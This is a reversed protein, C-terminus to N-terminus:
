LNNVEGAQKHVPLTDGYGNPVYHYTVDLRNHGLLRSIEQRAGHDDVGQQRLQLYIEQAYNARLRHVGTVEIDLAKCARTITQRFASRWASSPTFQYQASPNLKEGINAPLPVVRRKGGKGTVHLIGNEIDVDQGRLGAIEDERLGCRLALEAPLAFRSSHDYLYAVIREADTVQYGFRPARVSSADNFSKVHARLDETVPDPQRTWGLQHCGAYVKGIAALLKALSGAAQGQYFTDLTKLLVEPTLLDCLKGKGTIEEARLFFCTAVQFYSTRTSIGLIVPLPQTPDGAPRLSKKVSEVQTAEQYRRIQEPQWTVTKLAHDVQNSISSLSM